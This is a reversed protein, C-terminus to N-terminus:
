HAMERLAREAYRNQSGEKKWAEEEQDLPSGGRESQSNVEEQREPM